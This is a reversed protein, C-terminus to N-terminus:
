VLDELINGRYGCQLCKVKNKGEPVLLGGCEPCPQPLPKEWIAFDCKPFNACGYFVRKGKTRREILKAGCRPCKAEIPLPKANKCKPYNSCSLFEGYRGRKIVMPSGCKECIEHTPQAASKIKPISLAKELEKAFPDYFERLVPIWERNGQAIEDLREEMQATFGLDVIGPFYEKLLDTVIFGLMKPKFHGKEKEVYGREQIISLIPAYTSPRGIGNEELAKVLTAETYRPPPKTFHQEPFLGLLDLEDGQALEPLPQEEGEREEEDKGESYLILFGPFTIVSSTTRFLYRRSDKKAEIEVTTMDQSAAAMQSAVMRKWILEYLKFQDPTLYPQLMAPERRISTPRIAEHAEQAGKVKKFTRPSPPLFNPGYKEAIYERVEAIAKPAVHTSDTRMYTILGVPEEEGIPLGEYLEQALAMTHKATFRLKRWAEQQLTSTIFPAVPQRSLTKRQVKAVTYNAGKLEATLRDAEEKNKIELKKEEALGVLGARFSSGNAKKKLEAEITWYETPVFSEIEREREVIMRLAASQVRGASLGRMVKRWLIPSIKYGVLRDLIRRAQQANVLKLDIERPNRFAEEVAEKTIEHFVVRKVPLKSLGAAQVVHWSIAEGERDPDTALYVVSSDKAAAKIEKIVKSKGKLLLYKPAFGNEIDVGLEKEPLDRVHGLTAKVTYGPKLFRSITRAKAPSEVIVLKKAM